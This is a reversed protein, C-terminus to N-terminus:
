LVAGQKLLKKVEAHYVLPHVWVLLVSQTRDFHSVPALEISAFENNTNRKLQTVTGVPYGVPYHLGLGSTVFVDGQKVDSAKLVHILSLQYREGEGVAVGRVGSRADKVPIASRVDTLLLLKSAWHGVDVIQGMVGSADLVPQGPFVGAQTGQNVILQQLNPNLDVAVLQAVKVKDNMRSASSLLQRLQKNERELELLKQLQSRLLIERSRLQANEHITKEQLLLATAATHMFKIPYSVISQLPQTVVSLSSRFSHFSKSRADFLMLTISLAM